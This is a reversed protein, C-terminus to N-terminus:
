HIFSVMFSRGTQFNDMKVMWSEEDDYFTGAIGGAKVVGYAVIGVGIRTHPYSSHFWSESASRM